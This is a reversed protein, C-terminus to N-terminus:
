QGGTSLAQILNPLAPTNPHRAATERLFQLTPLRYKPHGSALLQFLSQYVIRRLALDDFDTRAFPLGATAWYIAHAQPLTWDLPGFRADLSACLAPDPLPPAEKAFQARYYPATADDDTGLKHLYLWALERHLRASGPNLAMGDDRLLSIGAKVWRWRDTPDPLLAPINYAMNWAHYAWIAPSRPQLRAIWDSLQALEFFRGEDQLRGARMWLLDALIGRFGGLAVTTFAAEPPLNDTAPAQTLGLRDRAALLLRSTAGSM